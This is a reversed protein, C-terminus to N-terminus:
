RDTGAANTVLRSRVCGVGAGLWGATVLVVINVPSLEAAVVAATVSLAACVVLLRGRMVPLLATVAAAVAATLVTVTMAAGPAGTVAAGVWACGAASLVAVACAVLTWRQAPQLALWMLACVLLVSVIVRHTTTAAALDVAYGTVTDESDVLSRIQDQTAPSAPGTATILLVDVTGASLGAQTAVSATNPNTTLTQLLAATNSTATTITIPTAAGAPFGAAHVPATAPPDSVDGDPGDLPLGACVAAASLLVAAACTGTVGRWGRQCHFMWADKLVDRVRHPTTSAAVPKQGRVTVVAAAICVATLAAVTVTSGLSSGGGRGGAAAAAAIAAAAITIGLCINRSSVQVLTPGARSRANVTWMYERSVLGCIAVVSVAAVGTVSSAPILLTAAAAAASVLVYGSRAYVWVVVAVLCSIGALVGLLGVPNTPSSLATVTLGITTLAATNDSGSLVTRSDASLVTAPLAAVQSQQTSTLVHGSSNSALVAASDPTTTRPGTVIATLTAMIIVAFACFLTTVPSRPCPVQTPPM